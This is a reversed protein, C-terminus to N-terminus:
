PAGNPAGGYRPQEDAADGEGEQPEGSNLHVQTLAQQWMQWCDESDTDIVDPLPGREGLREAFSPQRATM